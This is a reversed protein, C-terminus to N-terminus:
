MSIINRVIFCIADIDFKIKYYEEIVKIVEKVLSIEKDYKGLILDKYYCTPSLGGGVLNNISCAMHVKLGTYTAQSMKKNINREINLIFDDYIKEYISLDINQLEDELAKAFSEYSSSTAKGEIINILKDCDNDMFVDYTSIYPIGYINPNITGVIALINKEKSINNIQKFMHDKNNLSMPFVELNHKKINVKSEIFSKLKIASGEGTTCLTVIINEKNPLFHERVKMNYSTYQYVNKLMEEYIKEIDSEIIAKRSCELAIPTTVMDISKIKIGTDRSILEGFIGLSGMDVLLLTGAGQEKKIILEKLEEYADKTSKELPMDYGYVNNAGVLSNVVEAMSSATARGHMAIIVIPKGYASKNEIEDVTLFMTIFGIEDEPVTIGYNSEIKKSLEEAIEYEKGYDKQINELNHNVIDKNEKLRNISGNIHLCLGYFVKNPFIRDLKKSADRLFSEVIDILKEDVIKSLQEKHIGLKFSRMFNKFYNEIDLEMMLRIDEAKLDRQQLENMRKEIEEYFNDPLSYDGEELFSKPGKSTFELRANDKILKDVENRHSKYILLGQNVHSAFDTCHVVINKLGNSVSNLFANACGLQIDSKLQGVNGSCEYLLLQRMTNTSVQISRGIRGAEITFFEYILQFREELSREKLQPIEITMPIRRTFTTLLVNDIDETTACIILVKSERKKEDGLPTYLGKDILYFLMEQGEPPLRHVEDLFLVGGNAKAVIGEKDKDAGTFAGKKCGFLYTLLLQPNNAYDACNFAIFPSDIPFTSNEIAFNFMLEAFMTKGVGSPGLILTHLGNPPYLIAAKAQQISKKLSDSSGILMDFNGTTKFTTTGRKEDKNLTYLVPKGRIKLLKGEKYLENLLSSANSRHMNLMKAIEGASIGKSSNVISEKVIAFVKEKNNKM